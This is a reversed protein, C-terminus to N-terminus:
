IGLVFSVFQFVGCAVIIWASVCEGCRTCALLFELEDLAYPPRIWREARKSAHADVGEVVKEAAKHLGRKFFARRDM